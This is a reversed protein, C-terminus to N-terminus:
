QELSIVRIMKVDSENVNIKQLEARTEEWPVRFLGSNIKCMRVEAVREHPHENDWERVQVMLDQMAPSTSALIKSPSDAKKGKSRSTFLCGVFHRNSDVASSDPPILFAQGLLGHGLSKCHDAYKTFAASYSKRFALAIGAGWSGECNCAHVLLSFPPANFINGTEEHLVLTAPKAVDGCQLPGEASSSVPADNNLPQGVTAHETDNDEKADSKGDTAVRRKKARRAPPPSLEDVKKDVNEFKRTSSRTSRSKM